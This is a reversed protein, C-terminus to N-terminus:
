PWPTPGFPSDLGLKGPNLVGAPDLAAKVAALVGFSEGRARRMFRGRNIGVGHHHSLAGGRDLVTGTVADWVARYFGDPDDSRGAFTFYLCAGDTYAHSQHATAALAGPVALAAAVAEDYVGPLAAWPGAVEITDVVFGRRVAKELGSVDNRHHLWREVLAVDEAVAGARACEEAVIEMVGDLLVGDGEDLVILAHRGELDFNRKSEASDYLRLVAPTAGRRFMLRCAELGAAFSDFSWAGRREDRPLPRAKLTVSTVIGLTGESGVFLRTLDPGVAARPGGEGTRVVDGSALVVELGAVMDEVKGYRNSYQGAGRCAVWGGVTSLDMSQPWHGVTLGHSGRLEAEFANGFTGPLVEVLLSEDDVATIGRMSTMDLVVGGHVPISSGCVGSRGGAATVPMGADACARVVAAVEAASTPRAILAPIAPVEGHLAWGIALPWWDRGAEVLEAGDVSVAPCAARVRDVFGAPVAAAAAAFRARAPGNEVAIPPTPQTPASM